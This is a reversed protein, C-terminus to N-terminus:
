VFHSKAVWWYVLYSFDVLWAIIGCYPRAVLMALYTILIPGLSHVCGNGFPYYILAFGTVAAYLHRGTPAAVIM